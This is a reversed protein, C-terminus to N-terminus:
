PKSPSANGGGADGGIPGGAGPGSSLSGGGAGGGVPGGASGGAFANSILHPPFGQQTAAATIAERSAGAARAAQVVAKLQAGARLAGAVAKEADNGGTIAAYVIEYVQAPDNDCKKCLFYVVEGVDMGAKVALNFIEAYPKKEALATTLSAQQADSLASAGPATAAPLLHPAIMKSAFVVGFMFLVRLLKSM